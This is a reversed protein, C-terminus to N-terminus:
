SVTGRAEAPSRRDNPPSVLARFERSTFVFQCFRDQKDARAADSLARETVDEPWFDRRNIRVTESPLPRLAVTRVREVGMRLEMVVEGPTQPHLLQPISPASDM